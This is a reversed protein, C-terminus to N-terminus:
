YGLKLWVEELVALFTFVLQVQIDKTQMVELCVLIELVKDVMVLGMVEEVVLVRSGLTEQLHYEGNMKDVVPKVVVEAV